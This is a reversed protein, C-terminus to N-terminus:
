FKPVAMHIFHIWRWEYGHQDPRPHMVEVGVQNYALFYGNEGLDVNNLLSRTGATNKPGILYERVQEKAEEIPLIGAEVADNKERILILAMEVANELIIEGKQDLEHQSIIFSPIGVILCSLLLLLSVYIILRINLPLKRINLFKNM